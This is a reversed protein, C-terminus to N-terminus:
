VNSDHSGLLEAINSTFKRLDFNVKSFLGFLQIQKGMAEEVDRGGTTINDVFTEKLIVQAALPYETAYDVAMQRMTRLALFPSSMLGFTVTTLKFTRIPDNPNFRWLVLQLDQDSSDVGIQRYMQKIDCTFIVKYRRLNTIINKLDPHLKPGVLQIDNLSVGTSSKAGADMVIRVKTTSSSEKVVAHHPLYFHRSPINQAPVMHGLKIYEAMGADYQKKFEPNMKLKRELAFLRKIAQPKSEGLPPHDPKLPIKVVYRGKEDRYHNEVFLKEALKEEDSLPPKYNAHEVEWFRTVADYLKPGEVTLLVVPETKGTGQDHIPAKGLLAHGFVTPLLVPLQPGLKIPAGTIVYPTLDAGILLDIQGGQIAYQPDALAFGVLKTQLEASVPDTPLPATIHNLIDVNHEEVVLENKLTSINLRATGKTRVEVQSVGSLSAHTAGFRLRLASAARTTIITRQSASDLIGRAVFTRGSPVSLQVLVTALLIQFRKGTPASSSASLAAVIRPGEKKLQTTEPHLKTHHKASCVSCTNKSSCHSLEHAALCNECRGNSNIFHKREAVTKSLFEDCQRLPHTQSCMPCKSNWKKGARAEKTGSFSPNGGAKADSDAAILARASKDHSGQHKSNGMYAPRSQGSVTDELQLSQKELFKIIEQMKPFGTDAGRFDELRTRLQFPLKRLMVAVLLDNDEGLNRNLARLAQSHESFKTLFKSISTSYNKIDEMDLLCNLHYSVLRRENQYRKQLLDWAIVYNAASIELGKVLSLAEGELVSLLYQFKEVATLTAVDHVSIRFVNSFTTWDETKGSFHKLQLRPLRVNGTAPAPNVPQVPAANVDAPRTPVGGFSEFIAEVERVIDELAISESTVSLQAQKELYTNIEMIEFQIAEFRDQLAHLRHLMAVYNAYNEQSLKKATDYYSQARAFISERKQRAVELSREAKSMTAQGEVPM